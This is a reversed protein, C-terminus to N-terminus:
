VETYCMRDTEKRIPREIGVGYWDRAHLIKKKGSQTVTMVLYHHEGRRDFSHLEVGSGNPLKKVEEATLEKKAGIYDRINVDRM